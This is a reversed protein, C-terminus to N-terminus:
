IKDFLTLVKKRDEEMYEKFTDLHKIDNKNIENVTILKEKTLNDNIKIHSFHIPLTEYINDNKLMFYLYGDYFVCRSIYGIKEIIRYDIIPFNWGEYDLAYNDIGTYIKPSENLTDLIIKDYNKTLVKLDDNILFIFVGESLKYSENYFKHLDIYGNYRPGIIIKLKELYPLKNIQSITDFDDNDLRIIFEINEKNYSLDYFLSITDILEESRERSALLISITKKKM